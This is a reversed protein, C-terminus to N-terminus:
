ALYALTWTVEMGKKRSIRCLTMPTCIYSSSTAAPTAFQRSTSSTAFQRLTSSRERFSFLEEQLLMRYKGIFPDTGRSAM